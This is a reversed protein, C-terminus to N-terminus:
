VLRNWRAPLRQSQHRSSSKHAIGSPPLGITDKATPAANLDLLARIAASYGLFAAKHLATQGESDRSNVNWGAAALYRLGPVLYEFHFHVHLLSTVENPNAGEGLLVDAVQFHAAHGVAMLLPSAQQWIANANQRSALQRVVPLIVSEPLRSAAMLWLDIVGTPHPTATRFTRLRDAAPELGCFAALEFPTMDFQTSRIIPDAAATL